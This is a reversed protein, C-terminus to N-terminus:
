SPSITFPSTGCFQAYRVLWCRCQKFIAAYCQAGFCKCRCISLILFRRSPLAGDDDPIRFVFPGLILIPLVLAILVVAGLGLMTFGTESVTVAFKPGSAM